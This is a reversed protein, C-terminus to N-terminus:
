FRGLFRRLHGGRKRANLYPSKYNRRYGVLLATARGLYPIAGSIKLPVRRKDDTLWVKLKRTPGPRSICRSKAEVVITKKYGFKSYFKEKGVIRGEVKWLKGTVFVYISFTKGTKYPLFRAHYLAGVMDHTMKPVKYKRSWGKKLKKTKQDKPRVKLTLNTKGKTAMDSVLQLRRQQKVGAQDVDMKYSFENKTESLSFLSEFRNNVRHVKDFFTNTRARMVARMMLGKGDKRVKKLLLYSHGGDVSGIKARFRLYEGAQVPTNSRRKNKKSWATSVVLTCMLGLIIYLKKM